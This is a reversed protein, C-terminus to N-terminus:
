ADVLPFMYHIVEATKDEDNQEGDGLFHYVEQSSQVENNRRRRYNGCSISSVDPFCRAKVSNEVEDSALEEFPPHGTMIFYILSGLSFLDDQVVSRRRWSFDPQLYRSSACASARYDDLASGSLDAFEVVLDDDLLMDKPNIDCHIVNAAHLLQIREAAEQAWQLRQTTSIINNKAKISARLNDNSMYEM